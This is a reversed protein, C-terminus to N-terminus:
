NMRSVAHGVFTNIYVTYKSRARRPGAKLGSISSWRSSVRVLVSISFVGSRM